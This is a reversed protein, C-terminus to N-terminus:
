KSLIKLKWKFSQRTMGARDVIENLMTEDEREKTARTGTIKFGQNSTMLTNGRQPEEGPCVTSRSRHVKGYEPLLGFTDSQEDEEDEEKIAQYSTQRRQRLATALTSFVPASFFCSIKSLFSFDFFQDM